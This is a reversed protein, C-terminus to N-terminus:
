NACNSNKSRMKGGICSVLFEYNQVQLGQSYIKLFGTKSIFSFYLTLDDASKAHTLSLSIVKEVRDHTKAKQTGVYVRTHKRRM